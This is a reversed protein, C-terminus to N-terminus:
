KIHPRVIPKYLPIILKKEKYTINRRVLGIIQNGKSSVICCQESLKMDASITVGLDKEKVITPSPKSRHAM